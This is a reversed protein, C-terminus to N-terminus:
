RGIRSVTEREITKRGLTPRGEKLKRFAQQSLQKKSRSESDKQM